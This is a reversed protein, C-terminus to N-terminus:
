LILLATNGPRSMWLHLGDYDTRSLRIVSAVLWLALPALALGTLRQAWWHGVGEKASGLGRARGLASRMSM